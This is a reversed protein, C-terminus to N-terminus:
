SPKRHQASQLLQCHARLPATSETSTVTVVPAAAKCVGAGYRLAANAAQSHDLNDWPVARSRVRHRSQSFHVGIRGVQM